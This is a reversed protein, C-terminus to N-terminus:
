VCRSTYLLCAESLGFQSAYEAPTLWAHYYPSGPTQQAEVLADLRAQQDATPQFYITVGNLPTAPDLRGVDYRSAVRPNVSGPLAATSRSDIEQVIRNTPQQASTLTASILVAFVSGLYPRLPSCHM